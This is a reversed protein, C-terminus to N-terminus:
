WLSISSQPIFSISDFENAEKFASLVSYAIM